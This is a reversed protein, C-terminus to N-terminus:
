GEALLAAAAAVRISRRTILDSWVWNHHRIVESATLHPRDALTHGDGVVVVAHGASVAGRVTSDVCFDTAWGAILLRDPALGDLVSPLRTGAFADNLTKSVVIDDAARGLEPLLLWGPQDPAFDDGAPGHHQIWIVKGSRGRVMAAIRNIRGIVAALDHKPPGARLGEQMDVVVFADM